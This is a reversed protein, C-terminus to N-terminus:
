RVTDYTSLNREDCARLLFLSCSRPTQQMSIAEYMCMFGKVKTKHKRIIQNLETRSIYIREHDPSASLIFLDTRWM